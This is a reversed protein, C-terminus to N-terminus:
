IQGITRYNLNNLNLGNLAGLQNWGDFLLIEHNAEAVFTSLKILNNDPHNNLILIVNSKTKTLIKINLLKSGLNHVNDKRLDKPLEADAGDFIFIQSVNLELLKKIIDISISCRTDKTSPSGKFALGIILVRLSKININKKIVWNNIARIPAYTAEVNIDRALQSLSKNDKFSQNLLLPDKTLCYGGVGPSPYAIPDRPYGSNAKSILKHANISFKECMIGIQNAFAFRLDRYSNNILKVLEAEELNECLLSSLSIKNWFQEAKELAIENNSGIIQPINKIEEFADGEITREPTFSLNIEEESIDSRLKILYNILNRSTGVPVTSRLFIHANNNYVESISKISAKLARDDLKKDVLDTGVCIIYADHQKINEILGFELKGTEKLRQLYEEIRPELIHTQCKNLKNIISQSIDYGFVQFGKDALTIALTLGVYGMGIVSVRTIKKNKQSQYANLKHFDLIKILVKKDNIIPIHNPYKNLKITSCKEKILNLIDDQDLNIIENDKLYIIEKQWLEKCTNIKTGLEINSNRIDRDTFLGLLTKGEIVFYTGGIEVDTKLCDELKFDSGLSILFFKNSEIYFNQKNM